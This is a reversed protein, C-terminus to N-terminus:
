VVILIFNDVSFPFYDVFHHMKETFPGSFFTLNSLQGRQRNVLNRLTYETVVRFPTIEDGSVCTAAAAKLDNDTIDSDLVQRYEKSVSTAFTIQALLALLV